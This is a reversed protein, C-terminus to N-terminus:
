DYGKEKLPICFGDRRLSADTMVPWAFCDRKKCIFPLMAKHETPLYLVLLFCCRVLPPAALFNFEVNEGKRVRSACANGGLVRWVKTQRGGVM